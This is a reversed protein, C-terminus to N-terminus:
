EKLNDRDDKSYAADKGDMYNSVFCSVSQGIGRVSKANANFNISSNMDIGLRGGEKIADQNAGIFTFGWKHDKKVKEILEFVKNRNFETSSNEQGDTIIVFLVKEPREEEKTESFRKSVSGVTRGIADLLATSGRPELKINDVDKIPKNNFM